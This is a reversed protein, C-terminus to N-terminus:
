GAVRLEGFAIQGSPTLPAADGAVKDGTVWNSTVTYLPMAADAEDLTTEIEQVIGCRDDADPTSVLQSILEDVAPDDYAAKNTGQAQSDYVQALMVGPEPVPLGETALMMEPVTQPDTLLTLYDAFAIPELDLTVGIEALDSQLLTAEKVQEEFAPQYRMTITLDDIGAEELVARAADLDQSVPPLDAECALGAPLMTTNLTGSGDRIGDLGGQYDYALRLAERVAPDSTAGTTNNLWVIAMSTTAPAVTLGADEVAAIDASTVMAADISGSLLEDRAASLEDIRRLVLTAPRDEDFDFYDDFREYTITGSDNAALSYAGSGADNKLLWSQADDSGEHEAVLASNVIYIRSLRAAFLADPGDLSITLTRDDVIETGAYGALQGAVGTGIRQIRDLTYQVDASTLPTGDHFVVDDRLTITLASADDNYAFESALSGVLEGDADYTVLADYLPAVAADVQLYSTQSPDLTTVENRNAVIITSDQASSGDDSASQPAQAACATAVLLTGVLVSAAAIPRIPFTTV